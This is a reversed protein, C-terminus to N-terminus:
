SPLEVRVSSDVGKSEQTQTDEIFSLTINHKKGMLYIEAEARRYRRRMRVIKLGKLAGKVVEYDGNLDFKIVSPECLLEATKTLCKAEEITLPIPNQGNPLIRLVQRIGSITYYLGYNYQIEVFVYGPFLMYMQTTWAKGRRIVRNEIPAIAKVGRAKLQKVVEYEEGTSVQLVYWRSNM